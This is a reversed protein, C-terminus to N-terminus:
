IVFDILMVRWKNLLYTNVAKETDTSPAASVTTDFLTPEGVCPALIRMPSPFESLLFYLTSPIHFFQSLRVKSWTTLSPKEWSPCKLQASFCNSSHQFFLLSSWSALGPSWPLSTPSSASSTPPALDYHTKCAVSLINNNLVTSLWM